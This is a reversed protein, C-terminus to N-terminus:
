SIANVTATEIIFSGKAASSATCSANTFPKLFRFDNLLFDVKLVHNLVAAFKTPNEKKAELANCAEPTWAKSTDSWKGIWEKYGWPNRLKLIRETKGNIVAEKASILTFAHGPVLGYKEYMSDDKKTGTAMIHNNDEAYKIKQWVLESNYSQIPILM